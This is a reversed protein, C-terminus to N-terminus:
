FALTAYLGLGSVTYDAKLTNNGSNYSNLRIETRDWGIGLGLNKIFYWNMHVGSEYMGGDIGQANLRFFRYYSRFVLGKTMAWDIGFGILPVPIAVSSGKEFGGTTENGGADIVTGDTAISAGLDVYSLGASGSIRVKEDHLFDYRFAGYVFRTSVDATVTGDTKFTYDGWNIDEDIVRSGSRDINVYGFDVHRRKASVRATGYIAFTTKSGPIDFIQEFDVSAGIGNQGTFSANSTLQNISGGIDLWVLDPIKDAFEEAHVPVAIVLAAVVFLFSGLISGIKKTM